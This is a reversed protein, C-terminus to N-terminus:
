VVQKQTRWLVCNYKLSIDMYGSLCISNYRQCILKCQRYFDNWYFNTTLNLFLNYIRASKVEILYVEFFPVAKIDSRKSSESNM